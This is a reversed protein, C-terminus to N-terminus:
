ITVARSHPSRTLRATHREHLTSGPYWYVDLWDFYNLYNWLRKKFEVYEPVDYQPESLFHTLMTYAYQVIFLPHEVSLFVNHLGDTFRGADANNLTHLSRTLLLCSPSAFPSLFLSTRIGWLPLTVDHKRAAEVIPSVPGGAMGVEASGNYL